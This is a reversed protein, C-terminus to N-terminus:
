SDARCQVEQHPYWAAIGARGIFAREHLRCTVFMLHQRADAPMPPTRTEHAPIDISTVDAPSDSDDAAYYVTVAFNCGNTFLPYHEGTYVNSTAICAAERQWDAARAAGGGLSLAAAAAMTVMAMLTLKPAGKM